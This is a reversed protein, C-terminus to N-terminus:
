EIELLSLREADTLEIKPDDTIGILPNLTNFIPLVKFKISDSLEHYNVLFYGEKLNKSDSHAISSSISLYGDKFLNFDVVWIDYNNDLITKWSEDSLRYADEFLIAFNQHSTLEKENYPLVNLNMKPLVSDFGKLIFLYHSRHQCTFQHNNIVRNIREEIIPKM